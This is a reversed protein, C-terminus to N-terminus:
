LSNNLSFASFAPLEMFFHQLYKTNEVTTENKNISLTDNAEGTGTLRVEIGLSVETADGDGARRIMGGAGL